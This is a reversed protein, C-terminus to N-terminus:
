TSAGLMDVFDAESLIEIPMGEKRMAEAKNIKTSKHGAQYGIFGAQGIVLYDTDRTVSDHCIGGRDVVAQMADRRSM